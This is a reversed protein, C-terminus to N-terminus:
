DSLVPVEGIARRTRRLSARLQAAYAGSAGRRLADRVVVVRRQPHRVMTPVYEVRRIRLAGDPREGVVLRVVLGDQTAARCCAASQNSLMNGAPNM